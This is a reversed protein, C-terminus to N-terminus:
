DEKVCITTTTAETTDLSERVIDPKWPPRYRTGLRWRRRQSSNAHELQQLRRGTHTDAAFKNDVEASKSGGGGCDEHNNDDDDM